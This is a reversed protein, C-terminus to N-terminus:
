RRVDLWSETSELDGDELELGISDAFTQLDTGGLIEIRPLSLPDDYVTAIKEDTTFATNFGCLELVYSLRDDYVGFPAAISRVPEGLRAELAAKSGAVERLMEAPTLTEASRHTALHSGFRCGEAHLRQIIPWDMLPATPGYQADWDSRGAVKDTVIFVEATFDHRRLIPWAADAFDQYGDDFTILVPRGSFPKGTRIHEALEEATIARYGYRRLLRMQDHFEAPSVRYDALAEPGDIGVRHYCLVPVSTARESAEVDQRRAKAGGWIVYREVEPDLEDAIPGREIIAPAAAVGPTERRFLNIRYLDTVLARELRLGATAEFVDSITQGGYADGWDFGTRSDDDSLQFAHAMLLLGGPKLADRMRQAVRGLKQEDELYYLVESCVILDMGEPFVGDILNFQAYDINDLAACRAKAREVAADAIDVALLRDVKPALMTTFHGEACAVEMARAIKGEPLLALTQEYKLTEYANTYDWPDETEFVREFFAKPDNTPDANESQLKTEAAPAGPKNAVQNAAEEIEAILRRAKVASLDEREAPKGFTRAAAEHLLSSLAGKLALRRNPARVLNRAIRKGSRLGVVGVNAWFRPDKLLPGRRLFPRLYLTRLAIQAVEERSLAGWVPTQTHGVQRGGARFRIHVTDTEPRPAIPQFNRIDIEVDETTPLAPINEYAMQAKLGSTIRRALHRRATKRELGELFQALNREIAPGAHILEEGPHIKRAALVGDFVAAALQDPRDRIEPLHDLSDILAGCDGGQAAYEGACWCLFYGPSGDLDDGNRGNKLHPSPHPVRPDPGWSRSTVKLGDHLMQVAGTSLSGERLRYFALIDPIGVFRAGTRAVKQWLDWDECTVLSTDFGGVDVLLRRRVIIGHVVVPCGRSFSRFPDASVDEEWDQDVREGNPRVRNYGCYVADARTRRAKGLMKQFFDPAIWDDADLFLIWEGKADALGANRAASAGRNEQRLLRVRPDGYAEVVEATGDTSGDDVVIAEWDPRTQARLSDLAERVTDAANFAPIVVTVVSSM